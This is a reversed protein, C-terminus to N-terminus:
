LFSLEEMTNITSYDDKYWINLNKIAKESLKNDKNTSAHKQKDSKPLHPLKRFGLSKVLVEFDEDLNEQRGVFFIDDSRQSLYDSSVLWDSLHSNVHVISKMAEHAAKKVENNKSYISEALDNPSDFLEFAKKEGKTWPVYYRPKGERKRSNFGSVFRSTPDRIFFFVKDDVPVDVLSIKHPHLLIIRKGVSRNNQLAHKVATGGTKGIHLFHYIQNGKTRYYNSTLYVLSKRVTWVLSNLIEIQMLRQKIRFIIKKM